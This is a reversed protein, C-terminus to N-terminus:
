WENDGDLRPILQQRGEIANTHLEMRGRQFHPLEERITDFGGSM